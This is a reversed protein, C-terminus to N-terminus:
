NEIASRIEKELSYYILYDKWWKWRRKAKVRVVVKKKPKVLLLGFGRHRCIEVLSTRNEEGVANWSDESFALWHENAPYQGIQKLVGVEKHSYSNRTLFGYVLAGIVAVNLPLLFQLLGDDLKYFAFFAGSLICLFIGAHASNRILLWLKFQPKIAPLTKFSKAEMAVVHIGLLWHNFALLGDARKRGYKPKTRVETQSFLRGTLTMKRYRAALFTQANHQVYTESLRAM